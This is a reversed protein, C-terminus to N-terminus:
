LLHVRALDAVGLQLAAPERGKGIAAPGEGADDHDVLGEAQVVVHAVDGAPQGLGAVGGEGRVEEGAAIPRDAHGAVHRAQEEARSKGGDETRARSAVRARWPTGWSM